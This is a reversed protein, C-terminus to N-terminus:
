KRSKFRITKTEEPVCRDWFYESLFGKGHCTGCSDSLQGQCTSCVAYPKAVKIAIYAEDLNSLVRSFNVGIFAKDQKEEADRIIGRITSLPTLCSQQVAESRDWLPQIHAPIPHGTKDRQLEDKAPQRASPPLTAAPAPPPPPPATSVPPPPIPYRKGDAGIRVAPREPEEGPTTLHLNKCRAARRHDAVMPASVGCMRAIMRDSLDPFEEDALRISERKDASTRRIGHTVNAGLAYKLCETRNGLHVIARFTELGAIEAAALRHFGDALLYRGDNEFVVVPPFTVGERMAEAYEDLADEHMKARIQTGADITIQDIRLTVVSSPPPPIPTTHAQIANEADAGTTPAKENPTNM